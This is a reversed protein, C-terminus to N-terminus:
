SPIAEDSEVYRPLYLNNDLLVTRKLDRGLCKLDKVLITSEKENDFFETCHQRYLRHSVLVGHPDLFDVVQDAYSKCGATFIVIEFKSAWYTLFLRVWPRLFIYASESNEKDSPDAYVRM